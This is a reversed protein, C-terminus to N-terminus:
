PVVSYGNANRLVYYDQEPKGQHYGDEVHKPFSRKVTCVARDDIMGISCMLRITLKRSMGNIELSCRNGSNISFLMMSHCFPIFNRIRNRLNQAFVRIWM